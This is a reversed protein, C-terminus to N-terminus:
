PWVAAPLRVRVFEITRRAVTLAAQAEDIGPAPGSGPYRMEAGFRTLPAVAPRLILVEPDVSACNGLLQDLDHTRAFPLDHWALWGKLTKEIAQQVHFAAEAPLAPQDLLRESAALDQQARSFWDRALSARPDDPAM